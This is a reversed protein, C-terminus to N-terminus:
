GFGGPEGAAVGLGADSAIQQFGVCTRDFRRDAGLKGNGPGLEVETISRGNRDQPESIGRLLVACDEGSDDFRKM